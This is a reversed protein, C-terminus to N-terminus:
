VQVGLSESLRNMLIDNIQMIDRGHPLLSQQIWVIVYSTSSFVTLCNFQLVVNRKNPLLVHVTQQMVESEVKLVLARRKRM